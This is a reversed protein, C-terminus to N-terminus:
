RDIDIAMAAATAMRGCSQLRCLAVGCAGDQANFGVSVMPMAFPDPFLLSLQGRILEQSRLELDKSNL